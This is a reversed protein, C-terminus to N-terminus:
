QSPIGTRQPTRVSLSCMDRERLWFLKAREGLGEVRDKNRNPKGRGNGPQGRSDLVLLVAGSGGGPLM